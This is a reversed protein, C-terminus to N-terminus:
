HTMSRTWESYFISNETGPTVNFSIRTKEGYEWEKTQNIEVKSRIYVNNVVRM